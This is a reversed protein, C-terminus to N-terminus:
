CLLGGGQVLERGRTEGRMGGDEGREGSGARERKDRREDWRGRGEGQISSSTPATRRSPCV